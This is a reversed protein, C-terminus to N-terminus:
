HNAFLLFSIESISSTKNTICVDIKNYRQLTVTNATFNPIEFYNLRETGKQVCHM